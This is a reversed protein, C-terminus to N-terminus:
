RRPLVAGFLGQLPPSDNAVIHGIKGPRFDFGLGGAGIAIHKVVVGVPQDLAFGNIRIFTLLSFYM